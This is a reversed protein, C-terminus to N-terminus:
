DFAKSKTGPKPTAAPRASGSQPVEAQRRLIMDDSKNLTGSLLKATSVSTDVKVIEVVGIDTESRGLKEKTDPDALEKGLSV